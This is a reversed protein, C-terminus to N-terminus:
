RPRNLVGLAPSTNPATRDAAVRNWSFKGDRLTIVAVGPDVSQFAEVTAKHCTFYLVQNRGSLELISEISARARELDANVLIDDFVLPLTEGGFSSSEVYGFRIALYLQELSGRSLQEVAKRAGTRSVLEVKSEGIPAVVNEYRGATITRFHRAASRIVAPQKEMEFRRKAEEILFGAIAYRSWERSAVRIREMLREESERLQAISDAAQLARMAAEADAKDRRLREVGSETASIETECSALDETIGDRSLGEFTARIRAIDTEGAAARLTAEAAGIARLAGRWADHAAARARYETENKAKGERLLEELQRERQALRESATAMAAEAEARSKAARTRVAATERARHMEAGLQSVIEAAHSEEPRERGIGDCLEGLDSLFAEATAKAAQAEKGLRGRVEMSKVCHDLQQVTERAAAPSLADSVGQEGLWERWAAQAAAVDRRAAEVAATARDLEAEAECSRRTRDDLERIVTDRGERRARQRDMDALYRDVADVIESASGGAAPALEPVFELLSRSGAVSAELEGRKADADRRRRSLERAAEVRRGVALAAHPEINGLGMDRAFTRWEAEM